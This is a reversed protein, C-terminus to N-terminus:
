IDHMLAVYFGTTSKPASAVRLWSYPIVPMRGELLGM